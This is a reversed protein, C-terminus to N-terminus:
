INYTFDIFQKVIVSKDVHVMVIAMLNFFVQEKYSFDNFRSLMNFLLSMDKGVFLITLATTKEITM